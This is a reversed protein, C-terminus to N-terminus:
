ELNGTNKNKAKHSIRVNKLLNSFTYEALKQADKGRYLNKGVACLETIDAYLENLIKLNNQALAKRNERIEYQAQNDAAISAIATDLEAISTESFGQNILADKYQRIHAKVLRLGQLVGEVDTRHINKRLLGLGFDAASLPIDAGAMKIYTSLNNVARSLGNVTAYLRATILKLEATEVKPNLLETATKFKGEFLTLYAENFKPSFAMFDALDRKLSFLIYGAIVPLEEHKCNYTRM